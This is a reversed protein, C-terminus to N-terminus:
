KGKLFAERMASRNAALHCYTKEIQEVSTGALIAVKAPPVDRAIMNTIWRHRFGYPTVHDPDVNLEQMVKQVSPKERLIAFRGDFRGTPLFSGRTSPFLYGGRKARTAVMESCADDLYIYRNRDARRLKKANKWRYGRKPNGEFIIVKDAPHWHYPEANLMEVPRCGTDRLFILMDRMDKKAVAILADAVEDRIAHEAGRPTGKPRGSPTWGHFIDASLRYKKRNYTLCARIIALATMQTSPMWDAHADIWRCIDDPTISTYYLHGFTLSFRRLVSKANKLSPPCEACLYEEYRKVFSDVTLGEGTPKPQEKMKELWIRCAELYNPGTDSDDEDCKLLCVPKGRITTCFGRKSPYYTVKAKRGV